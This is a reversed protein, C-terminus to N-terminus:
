DGFIQEFGPEKTAVEVNLTLPGGASPIRSFSAGVVYLQESLKIILRQMATEMKRVEGGGFTSVYRIRMTLKVSKSMRKFGVIDPLHESGEIENVLETLKEYIEILNEM